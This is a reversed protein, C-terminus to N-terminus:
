EFQYLRATKSTQPPKGVSIGAALECLDIKEECLLPVARIGAVRVGAKGYGAFLRRELIKPKGSKGVHQM